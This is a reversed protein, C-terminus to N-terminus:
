GPAQTNSCRSHPFTLTLIVIPAYRVDTTDPGSKRKFYTNQDIWGRAAFCHTAHSASNSTSLADVDYPCLSSNVLNHLRNIAYIRLGGNETSCEWVTSIASYGFKYWVILRKICFSCDCLEAQTMAQGDKTNPTDCTITLVNCQCYCSLHYKRSM